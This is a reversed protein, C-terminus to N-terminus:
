LILYAGAVYYADVDDADDFHQDFEDEQMMRFAPLSYGYYSPDFNIDWNGQWFGNEYVDYAIRRTLSSYDGLGLDRLTNVIRTANYIAEKSPIM